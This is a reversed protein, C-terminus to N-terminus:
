GASVVCLLILCEVQCKLDISLPFTIQSLFSGNRNSFQILTTPPPLSLLWWDKEITLIADNIHSFIALTTTIILLQSAPQMQYVTNGRTVLLPWGTDCARDCTVVDFFIQCM